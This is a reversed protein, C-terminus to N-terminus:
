LYKAKREIPVAIKNNARQWNGISLSYKGKPIILKARKIVRVKAIYKTPFFVALLLLLPRKVPM